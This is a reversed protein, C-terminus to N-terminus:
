RKTQYLQKVFPQIFDVGAIRELIAAYTQEDLSAARSYVDVGAPTFLTKSFFTVAWTYDENHDVVGWESKLFRLYWPKAQWLFQGNIGPTLYDYGVVDKKSGRHNKYRVEDLVRVGSACPEISYEVTPAFRNQWFNLSTKQIYWKGSLRELDIPKSAFYSQISNV